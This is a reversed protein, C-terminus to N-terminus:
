FVRRYFQPVWVPRRGPHGFAHWVWEHPTVMSDEVTQLEFGLTDLTVTGAHVAGANVGDIFGRQFSQFAARSSHADAMACWQFDPTAVSLGISGRNTGSGQGDPEDGISYGIVLGPDFPLVVSATDGANDPTPSVRGTKSSEDSWMVAMGGNFTADFSMAFDFLSGGTPFATINATTLFPGIFHGGATVKIHPSLNDVEVNYQGGGPATPFSFISLGAGFWGPQTSGPYAGGGYWEQSRDTGLVVPGAWAGHILSAGAKWGLTITGGTGVYAGVELVDFLAVVVVKYGGAAGQLWDLTFGGPDLSDVEAIWLSTSGSLNLVCAFHNQEYHNDAPAAFAMNQLLTGPADYKPACMGRQVGCGATTDITDEALWNTAFSFLAKPTKGGWGPFSYSVVGTGSPVTLVEVKWTADGAAM